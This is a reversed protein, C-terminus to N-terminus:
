AAPSDQGTDFRIEVPVALRLTQLVVCAREAAKIVQTLREPRTEPHARLRADVQFWQFAVPVRPDMGLTGRVDVGAQVDIKLQVLRVGFVDAVM